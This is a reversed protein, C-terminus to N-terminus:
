GTASTWDETDISQVYEATATDQEKESASDQATNPVKPEDDRNNFLLPFSEISV